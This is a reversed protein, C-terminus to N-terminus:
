HIFPKLVDRSLYFGRKGAEELTNDPLAATYFGLKM